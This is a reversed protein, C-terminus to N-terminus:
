QIQDLKNKLASLALSLHDLMERTKICHSVYQIWEHLGHPLQEYGPWRSLNTKHKPILMSKSHAKTCLKLLSALPVLVHACSLWPPAPCVLQICGDQSATGFWKRTLQLNRTLMLSWNLCPYNPWASCGLSPAPSCLCAWRTLGATGGPCGLLECLLKTNQDMGEQVTSRSSLLDALSHKNSFGYQLQLTLSQLM